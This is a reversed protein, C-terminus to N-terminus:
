KKLYKNEWDFHWGIDLSNSLAYFHGNSLEIGLSPYGNISLDQRRIYEVLEIGLDNIEDELDNILINNEIKKFIKRYKSKFENAWILRSNNKFIEADENLIYFEENLWFDFNNLFNLMQRTYEVIEASGAKVEGIDILQKVFIQDELSDPLYQELRRIPLPKSETAVKYCQGFRKCFDDFTIEFKGGISIDFYKANWLAGALSDFIPDVVRDQCFKELIKNKILNQIETTGTEINVKKLFKKLKENGLSILKDIYGILVTNTTKIKLSNLIIVINDVNLDQKFERLATAFENNNESKNTVLIFTNNEIFEDQKEKKDQIFVVWNNLTKWLDLDLTTLNQLEDQKNKVITHKTQYLITTGDNHEIHVDDKVEFGITQGFKFDLVLYMFYYFQYDYGVSQAGASHQEQIDKKSSNM